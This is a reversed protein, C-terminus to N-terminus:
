PFSGGLPDIRFVFVLVALVLAATLTSDIRDLMGGHGPILGGSDKIRFRRKIWSEALDGGHAALGLLAGVFGARWASAGICQGFLAVVAAATAVGGYFGAWTKDPSTKPVLKPGGILKGFLLAGTDTSWVALFLVLVLWQGHPADERVMALALAPVGLYLVGIGCWGAKGGELGELVAVTAAGCVLLLFSLFPNNQGVFVLLAAAIAAMGLLLASLGRGGVMRHWERLGLVLALAILAELWPKGAVIAAVVTGALGVGFIVRLHWDRPIM